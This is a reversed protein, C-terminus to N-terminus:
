SVTSNFRTFIMRGAATQLVSTVLVEVTQNLYGRGGDVVVMTGDDLYGVGQTAERGEKIIKVEMREDPLVVPKLANALDNVNLVQMGEIKAVKNLNFDNTLIKAHYKRAVIVLKGDVEACTQPDDEIIEVKIRSADGQLRNLVDLGHRGKARRLVDASDAIRQLEQLVFRPVLLTGELFGTECIDAIRGDIITSTDLLKLGPGHMNRREVASVLVDMRSAHTLGLSIGCFGFMLVLSVTVFVRLTVDQTPFIIFIYQGLAWGVLMALVLAGMAPALRNFMDQTIFRLALLVLAAAVIGTTAGVLLWLAPASAGALTREGILAAWMYGLTASALVFVVRVIKMLM